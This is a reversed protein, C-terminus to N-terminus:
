HDHRHHVDPLHPHDHVLPAHRYWHSHPSGSPDGPEHGHRHHEDHEHLYEHAPADHEHLHGHRERLLLLVGCAMVTMALLDYAHLPEGLIALAAIAGMFTATAFFAAERAAGILRLAYVDLVVSAGYAISGLVLAAAVSGVPPLTGGTLVMGIATNTGGAVLTKVRVIAFPLGFLAAASASSQV